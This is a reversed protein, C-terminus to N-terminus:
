RRVGFSESYVETSSGPLKAFLQLTYVPYGGAAHVSGLVRYGTWEVSPIIALYNELLDKLLAMVQEDQARRLWDGFELRPGRMHRKFFRSAEEHRNSLIRDHDAFVMREQDDYMGAPFQYQRLLMLHARGSSSMAGFKYPEPEIVEPVQVGQLNTANVKTWISDVLYSIKFKM